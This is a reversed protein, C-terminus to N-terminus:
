LRGARGVLPLYEGAVAVDFPNTYYKQQLQDMYADSDHTPTNLWKQYEEDSM